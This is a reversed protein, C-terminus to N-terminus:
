RGSHGFGGEGRETDPLCVVRRFGPRAVPALVAQAIRDGRRLTFTESGLNALIVKVEGRYDSDVTGPSNLVTVGHRLANGSRPRIQWEYGMPISVRIGTPVLLTQGPHLQVEGDVAAHLDAGSSGPTAISPLPLDSAHELVELLVEVETM